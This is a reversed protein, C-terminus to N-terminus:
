MGITTFTARRICQVNCSRLPLQFNDFPQTWISTFSTRGISHCYCCSISVQLNHSPKMQISTFSACGFRNIQCSPVSVPLHYLPKTRISHFASLNFFSIAGRKHRKTSVMSTPRVQWHELIRRRNQSLFANSGPRNWTVIFMVAKWSITLALISPNHIEKTSALYLQEGLLKPPPVFATSHLSM